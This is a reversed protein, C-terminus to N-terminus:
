AMRQLEANTINKDKNVSPGQGGECSHKAPYHRSKLVNVGSGGRHM